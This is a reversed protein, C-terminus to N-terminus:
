KITIQTNLTKSLLSAVQEASLDQCSITVVENELAADYVFQVEYHAELVQIMEKFNSNKFVLKDDLWVTSRNDNLEQITYKGSQNSKLLQGPKLFVDQTGKIWEIKGEKLFVEFNNQNYANINFQTGHVKISGNQTSVVFPRQDPTVDFYAEGKVLHLKRKYNNYAEVNLESNKNLVVTSGDPLIVKEQNDLTVYNGTFGDDSGLKFQYFGIGCVLVIVAAAVWRFMYYKLQKTKVVTSKESAIGAKLKSWQLETNAEPYKFQSAQNWIADYIQIDQESLASGEELNSKLYEPFSNSFQKSM